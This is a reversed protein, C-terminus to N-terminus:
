QEQSVCCVSIILVHSIRAQFNYMYQFQVGIGENVDSQCLKM